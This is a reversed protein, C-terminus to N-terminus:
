FGEKFTRLVLVAERSPRETRLRQVFQERGELITNIFIHGHRSDLYFDMFEDISNFDKEFFLKLSDNAFRIKFM